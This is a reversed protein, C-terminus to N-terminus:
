KKGPVVLCKKRSEMFFLGGLYSVAIYRRYAETTCIYLCVRTKYTEACIRKLNQKFENDCTVKEVACNDYCDDHMQCANGFNASSFEYCGNNSHWNYLTAKGSREFVVCTCM